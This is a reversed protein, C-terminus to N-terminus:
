EDADYAPITVRFHSEADLPGSMKETTNQIAALADGLCTVEPKAYTM